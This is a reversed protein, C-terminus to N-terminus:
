KELYPKRMADIQKMWLPFGEVIQAARAIQYITPNDCIPCQLRSDGRRVFYTHGDKCKRKIQNM